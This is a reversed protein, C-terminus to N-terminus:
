AFHRLVLSGSSGQCFAPFVRKVKVLVSCFSTLIDFKRRASWLILKAGVSRKRNGVVVDDHGLLNGESVEGDM